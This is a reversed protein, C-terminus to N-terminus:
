FEPNISLYKFYRALYYGHASENKGMRSITEAASWHAIGESFMTLGISPRSRDWDAFFESVMKDPNKRAEEEAAIEMEKLEKERQELLVDDGWIVLDPNLQHVYGHMNEHLNVFLKEPTWQKVYYTRKNPYYVGAILTDEVLGAKVLDLVEIKTPAQQFYIGLHEELLQAEVNPVPKFHELKTDKGPEYKKQRKKKQSKRGREPSM